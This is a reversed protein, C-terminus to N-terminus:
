TEHFYSIVHPKARLLLYTTTVTEHKGLAAAIFPYRKDRLDRTDVARPEAMILIELVQPDNGHEAALDIALRGEQDKMRAAEPSAQVLERIVDNSAHPQTSSIHLPTRGLRDRHCTQSPFQRIAYRVVHFPCTLDVITHLETNPEATRVNSRILHLLLEWLEIGERSLPIEEQLIVNLKQCILDVPTVGRKDRVIIRGDMADMLLQAVETAIREDDDRSLICHLPLRGKSDRQTVGIPYQQLLYKAADLDRINMHLPLKREHNSQSALDSRHQLLIELSKLCSPVSNVCAHVVTDGYQDTHWISDEYADMFLSVVTSPPSKTLSVQLQSPEISHAYLCAQEPENKLVRTVREWDVNEQELLSYLSDTVPSEVSPASGM